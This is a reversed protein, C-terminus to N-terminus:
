ATLWRRSNAGSTPLLDTKRCCWIAGAVIAVNAVVAALVIGTYGMAWVGMWALPVYLAFIRGVSLAMSYLAKSRANMAANATVLIGYGFLSWGVLRLYQSAYDAAEGDSAIAQALPGAFFFLVAGVVAGYVICFAWSQILAARARDKDGAGWNQGVVPGIGASLAFLVAIAISQVRTAAGFGAVATDGLTAVAVTVLAIGAPNIANSFAAPGGVGTIERLSVWLDSLLSGCRILYGKRVAYVIAAVTALVRAILTAAAAGATGWGEIPGWGFILLPNLAINIVASAIMIISAMAANGRARFLANTIMQVVLFPFSAAWLPAYAMIEPMVDGSAGMARFLPAAFLAFTAALIISLILGYGLAHLSLRALATGSERRGIAQSLVSGTGASLGISLSTLSTTVPYIFGVAALPAGGLQGLFYADAIGVSLVALIGLTMPASMRALGRWVPGQTLDIDAM